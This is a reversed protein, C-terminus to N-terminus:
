LFLVITTISYTGTFYCLTTSINYTVKPIVISVPIYTHHGSM